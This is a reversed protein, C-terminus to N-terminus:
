QAILEQWSSARRAGGPRQGGDQEGTRGTEGGGLVGGCGFGSRGRSDALHQHLGRGGIGVTLDQLEHAVVDGGADDEGLVGM